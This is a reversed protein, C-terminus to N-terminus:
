EFKISKAPRILAVIYSPGLLMLMSVVLTAINLLILYWINLEIPVYSIYYAEPNLKLIHLHQQLLCVVLGVVNGWLMGRGVLYAAVNLFTRRISRNDAGLAKLTGIMSTNELIIILLGSIMTFGAVVAMLILIIWVNM